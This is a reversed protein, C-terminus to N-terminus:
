AYTLYVSYSGGPGRRDLLQLVVTDGPCNPCNPSNRM